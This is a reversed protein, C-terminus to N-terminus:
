EGKGVRYPVVTGGVKEEWEKLRSLYGVCRLAQRWAEFDLAHDWSSSARIEDLGPGSASVPLTQGVVEEAALAMARKLEGVHTYDVIFSDHVSLVPVELVTFHRHVREAIEGDINMLRIGQDACLCDELHPYAKVFAALLGTLEANTMSKAMHSAPWDDRFSQFASNQATANLATLVLKKVIKRQLEPPVGPVLGHPLAYPDTPIEVGKEVSLIAVHLGKFDVEVTPTDNIYIDKRLDSPIRQWWGGYFRGNCEWSGRSFIRRIFHAHRGIAVTASRGTDKGAEITAEWVPEALTPVDILAAALVHNYARLEERMRNTENDDEYEVLKQQDSGESGARLVICEQTDIRVIDDRRVESGAFLRCLSSSARIRTTRNGPSWPGSYSGRAVDILGVQDLRKILPVIKKSIHLANYRSIVDWSNSSMSVGVSLDPDETWAVYLDLILVMLQTKYSTKPRPGPASTSREFDAFHAEWLQDVMKRVNPHDSWRHVDRPRSNWPDKIPSSPPLAVEEVAM